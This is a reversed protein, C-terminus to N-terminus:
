KPKIGPLMRRLTNDKQAFHHYLAAAVHVAILMWVVWEGMIQKHFFDVPIEWEPFTIYRSTAFTSEFFGSGRFTPIGFLGFMNVQRGGTGLWGSLPAAILIFYLAFHSFKAALLQWQPAPDPHPEPNLLKWVLRPLFLLLVTTGLMTHIRVGSFYEPSRYETFLQSYYVAMYAGLFCVATIWHIWKAVSGYSVDTNKLSL